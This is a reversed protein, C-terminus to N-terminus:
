QLAYTLASNYDGPEAAKTVAQGTLTEGHITLPMPAMTCTPHSIQIQLQAGPEVNYIAAQPRNRDRDIFSPGTPLGQSTFYGVSAGPPSIVTLTGGAVSTCSGIPLVTVYVIAKSTDPAIIQQALAFAQSSGIPVYGRDVDEAAATADPLFLTTYQPGSVVTQLAAGAPAPLVFSGDAGTTTSDAGNTVTLGAVPMNNFYDVVIGHEGMIGSAMALDPAGTSSKSGGCGVICFSVMAFALRSTRM